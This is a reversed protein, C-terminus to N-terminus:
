FRKGPEGQPLDRQAVVNYRQARVRDQGHILAIRRNSLVVALLHDHGPPVAVEEVMFVPFELFEHGGLYAM